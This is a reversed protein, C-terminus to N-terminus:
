IKVNLVSQYGNTYIAKKQLQQGQFSLFFPLLQYLNHAGPSFHTACRTFCYSVDNKIGPLALILANGDLPRVLSLRSWQLLQWRLTLGKSPLRPRTVM